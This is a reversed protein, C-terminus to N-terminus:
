RWFGTMGARICREMSGYHSLIDQAGALYYAMKASNTAATRYGHEKLFGRQLTSPCVECMVKAGSSEIIDLYGMRRAYTKTMQCSLIWFEVTSRLKKGDLLRAIEKFEKISIFPCGLVVFDIEDSTAISISEETERLERENFEFIPLEHITKPGLAVEKSGGEPTVGVAHYLAVNGSTAAAAGLLKLEDWSASPPLGTLVPVRDQSVKGVFYGLTGYDHHGKLEASVAIELNGYRNRDLHLGYEPTRGLLAAAIASPGGERNTRAGLVSNAFSIASSEGWAIHEGFRPVHGIQYPTCSHCLFAGMKGLANTLVMQEGVFEECMGMEEWRLPEISMPNTDTFCIFKGGREALEKVFLAGAKGAGSLCAGQLHVSSIPIMREADYCEGMAVLIEMSKQVAYGYKGELMEYEEQNLYMNM